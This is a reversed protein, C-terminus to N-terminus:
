KLVKKIEIFLNDRDWNIKKLIISLIIFKDKLSIPSTLLSLIYSKYKQIIPLFFKDDINPDWFAKQIENNKRDWSSAGEHMRRYFMYKPIEIFKGYLCLEGMFNVDAANYLGFLTTKLMAKKRMLGYIVNSLGVNELFQIFRESPIDSILNLNDDYNSMFTGNADIVKTKGYCLVADSNKILSEYCAGHLDKTILDDSNQWRFFDTNSYKVLLNYNRAAGINEKNRYYKIRKDKEIYSRCIEETGDNSANDSIILEFDGFSQDLISIISKEIYKEGNYVPMGVSLKPSKM